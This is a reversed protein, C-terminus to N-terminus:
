HPPDGAPAASSRGMTGAGCRLGVRRARMDPQVSAPTGYNDPNALIAVRGLQPVAEKLLELRQAIVQVILEAVGTLNGGGRAPAFSTGVGAFVIPITATAHRAAELAYPGGTVLVDVGLDILDTALAPLRDNRGHGSRVELALNQGDRYGLETLRDRLVRM